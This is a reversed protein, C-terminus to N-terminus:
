RPTPAPRPASIRRTSRRSPASADAGAAFPETALDALGEGAQVVADGVGEVIADGVAEVPGVSGAAIANRRREPPQVGVELPAAAPTPLEAAAPSPPVEPLADPRAPAVVPAAIAEGGPLGEREVSRTGLWFGGAVMALGAAVGAVPKLWVPFRAAFSASPHAPSPAAALPLASVAALLRMRGREHDYGRAVLGEDALDCGTEWKFDPDDRLRRPGQDTM